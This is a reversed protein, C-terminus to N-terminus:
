RHEKNAEKLHRDRLKKAQEPYSKTLIWGKIFRILIKTTAIFAEIAEVYLEQPMEEKDFPSIKISITKETKNLTHMSSFIHTDSFHIYGSTKEYVSPLWSYIDSLKEVLYKDTMKKGDRDKMNRIHQGQIVASAFQNSDEILTGAFIRIATDIQLRLIAGACILNKEKVLTRFGKSLSLSRNIAASILLDVAYLSENYAKLMEKALDVQTKELSILQAISKKM